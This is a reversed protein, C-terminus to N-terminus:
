LIPRVATTLPVQGGMHRISWGVEAPCAKSVRMFSSCRWAMRFEALFRKPLAQRRYPFRNTPMGYEVPNLGDVEHWIGACISFAQHHPYRPFQLGADQVADQGTDPTSSTSQSTGPHQMPSPRSVPRSQRQVDQGMAAPAKVPSPRGPGAPCVEGRTLATTRFWPVGLLPGFPIGHRARRSM